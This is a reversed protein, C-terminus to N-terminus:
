LFEIHGRMDEATLIEYILILGDVIQRITRTDKKCYAISAHDLHTSARRPFDADHTVIVRGERQAFDWQTSDGTTRLGAEVTTTVGVGYRRLAAAVVPNVQEDLHFCVRSM